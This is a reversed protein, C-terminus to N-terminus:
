GVVQMRTALNNLEEAGHETVIITGGINVRHRGRCANPELEFVMGPKIVLDAAPCYPQAITKFEETEPSRDLGVNTPGLWSLPNISHLLPTQHWCGAETLPAEMAEAVEMFRRGPRMAELGIEYARRAVGALELNVPHVPKLSACMQQQTEMGGYVVFIEAMVLEGAQVQRPPVAEYMWAPQGWSLNDIGTQLILNPMRFGAGNRLIEGVVVAAIDSEPAGPRSAELLAQCAKEGIAASHRIVALEEEGKVLMVEGFEGSVEVFRAKPFSELVHSWTKYTMCGELQHPASNSVGVIGITSSEFGKKKLVAAVHHGTCGVVWNDQWNEIWPTGGRRAGEMSKFVRTSSWVLYVPDGELPFVVIGTASDNTLYGELEERGLLGTVILCDIGKEQMLGRVAAWRRDRVKLSLTPPVSM